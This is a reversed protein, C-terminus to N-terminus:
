FVYKKENSESYCSNLNHGFVVFPNMIIMLIREKCAFLEESFSLCCM